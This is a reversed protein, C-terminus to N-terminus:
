VKKKRGGKGKLGSGLQHMGAGQGLGTLINKGSILNNVATMFGPALAGGKRSKKQIGDGFFSKGQTANSIGSILPGALASFLLPLWGGLQTPTFELQVGRQGKSKMASIIKKYQLNTVIIEHSGSVLQSHSVRISVNKNNKHGSKLKSLQLPTLNLKIKVDM